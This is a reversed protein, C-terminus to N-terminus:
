GNENRHKIEYQEKNIEIVYIYIYIYMYIYITLFNSYKISSISRNYIEIM